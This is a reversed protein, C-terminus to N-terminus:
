RVTPNRWVSDANMTFVNINKDNRRLTVADAEESTVQYLMVARQILSVNFRQASKMGAAQQRESERSLWGDPRSVGYMDFMDLADQQEKKSSNLVEHVTQFPPLSARLNARSRMPSKFGSRAEDARNVVSENSKQSNRFRDLGPTPSHLAVSNSSKSVRLSPKVNFKHSSTAAVEWAVGNDDVHDDYIRLGPYSHGVPPSASVELRTRQCAPSCYTVDERADEVYPLSQAKLNTNSTKVNLERIRSVVYGSRVFDIDDPPGDLFMADKIPTTPGNLEPYDM